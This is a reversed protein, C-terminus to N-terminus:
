YEDPRLITTASRDHETIIWVTEGTESLPYSSLLRFGQEVSLENEQVDEEPLEGWDGAVHRLLYEAPKKGANALTELAGPTAVIQGLSFRPNIREREGERDVASPPWTVGIQNCANQYILEFLYLRTEFEDENAFETHGRMLGEKLLQEIELVYMLEVYDYLEKYSDPASEAQEPHQEPSM